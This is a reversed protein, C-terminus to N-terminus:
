PKEGQHHPWVGLVIQGFGFQTKLGVHKGNMKLIDDVTDTEVKLFWTSGAPLFPTLPLPKNDLSNWGGFRIPKGVCASVIETGPMNPFPEGPQPHLLLGNQNTQLLLPTLLTVTLKKSKKIAESPAEPLPLTDITRLCAARSEGGFPILDPLKWNEPVGEVEMTLEVDKQMRVYQPSYLLGEKPAHTLANRELGLRPELIWLERQSICDESSLIDNHLIKQLGECTIWLTEGQKLKTNPPAHNILEVFIAEGLDCTYKKGKSPSLFTYPNWNKKTDKEVLYGMAHLPMPFVYKSQQILYPGHFCLNDFDDYNNGLIPNLSTDWKGNGSWGQTRALAARIAGIMTYAAPPFQSPADAQNTEGHNFPRGDRFFWADLPSFALTRKTM